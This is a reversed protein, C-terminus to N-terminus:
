TVSELRPAPDIRLGTARDFLLAATADVRL